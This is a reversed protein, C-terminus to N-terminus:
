NKGSFAGKSKAQKLIFSMYKALALFYGRDYDAHLRNEANKSFERYYKKLANTDKLDINNLFTDRDNSRHMLIMGKLAQIFGRKFEDYNKGRIKTEIEELRREAETFRRELISQFIRNLLPPSVIIEHKRRDIKKPSM